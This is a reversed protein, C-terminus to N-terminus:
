EDLMSFLSVYWRGSFRWLRVLFRQQKCSTANFVATAYAHFVEIIAAVISICGCTTSIGHFQKQRRIRSFCRIGRSRQKGSRLSAPRVSRRAGVHVGRADAPGHPPARQHRLRRAGRPPGPLLPLARARERGRGGRWESVGAVPSYFLSGPM